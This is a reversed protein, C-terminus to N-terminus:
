VTFSVEQKLIGGTLHRLGAKDITWGHILAYIGNAQAIIPIELQMYEPEDFLDQLFLYFERVPYAKKTGHPNHTIQLTSIDIIFDKSIM